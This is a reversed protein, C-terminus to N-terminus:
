WGRAELMKYIEDTSTLIAGRKTWDEFPLPLGPIEKIADLPIYTQIKRELLGKVAQDVCVNTAVGYVIVRDPKILDVITKAHPTGAFVDFKDKYLVINRKFLIENLDFDEQAWEIIYPKDPTTVPIFQAGYTNQMCHQPFTNIWDPNVDIELTQDNHWDATNVVQINREKAIETLFLLSGEITEADQIYLKGDKRMFDNQTDVNWFITKM